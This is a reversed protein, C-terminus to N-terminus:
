DLPKMFQHLHDRQNSPFTIFAENNTSFGPHATSTVAVKKPPRKAQRKPIVPVEVEACEYHQMPDDPEVEAHEYHQMPDDHLALDIKMNDTSMNSVGGNAAYMANDADTILGARLHNKSYHYLCLYHCM